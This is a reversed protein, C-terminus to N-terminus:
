ATESSSLATSKAPVGRGNRLGSGRAAKRQKLVERARDVDDSTYIRRGVSDRAPRLLGLREYERLTAAGVGVEAAADSITMLATM